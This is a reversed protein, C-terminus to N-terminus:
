LAAAMNSQSHNLDIPFCFVKNPDLLDPKGSM